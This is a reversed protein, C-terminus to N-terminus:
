HKYNSKAYYHDWETRDPTWKLGRVGAELNDVLGFFGARSMKRNNSQIPKGAFYKQYKAHLHIHSLLPFRFLSRFPLLKAALDLPLGDIYIRLLQSLRVDTYKM